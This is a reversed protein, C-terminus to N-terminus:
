PPTLRRSQGPSPRTPRNRFFRNRDGNKALRKCFRAIKTIKAGAPPLRHATGKKTGPQRLGGFAARRHAFSWEKSQSVHGKAKRYATDQRGLHWTKSELFGHRAQRFARKPLCRTRTCSALPLWPPAPQIRKKSKETGKRGSKRDKNARTEKYEPRNSSMHIFTITQEQFRPKRQLDITNKDM